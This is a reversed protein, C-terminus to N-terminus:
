AAERALGSQSVEGRALLRVLDTGSIPRFSDAIEELASGPGIKLLAALVPATACTEVCYPNRTLPSYYVTSSLDLRKGCNDNGCYLAM